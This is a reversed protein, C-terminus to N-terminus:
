NAITVRDTMAWLSGNGNTKSRKLILNEQIGCVRQSPNGFTYTSKAKQARDLDLQIRSFVSSCSLIDHRRSINFCFRNSFYFGNHSSGPDSSRNYSSRASNGSSLPVCNARTVIPKRNVVDAFSAELSSTSQHSAELHIGGGISFGLIGCTLSSWFIWLNSDACITSPFGWQNPHSQSGSYEISLIFLMSIALLDGLARLSAQLMSRVSEEDLRFRRRGFSLLCFSNRSVVAM